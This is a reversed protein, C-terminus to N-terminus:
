SLSITQTNFSRHDIMMFRWVHISGIIFALFTSLQMADGTTTNPLMEIFKIIRSEKDVDFYYEFGDSESKELDKLNRKATAIVPKGALTKGSVINEAYQTVRDEM